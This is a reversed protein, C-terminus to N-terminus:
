GKGGKRIAKVTEKVGRKVIKDKMGKRILKLLKKSMKDSALPDAIPSVFLRSEQEEAMVFDKFIYKGSFILINLELRISNFTNVKLIISISLCAALVSFILVLESM